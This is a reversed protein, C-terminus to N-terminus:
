GQQDPYHKAGVSEMWVVSEGDLAEAIALHTMAADPAAGHWHKEGAPFWVSDGAVVTQVPKGWAQVLGRGQLILLTQGLPHTHWHTRAGPEFAVNSGRVRAPDETTFVPDVRVQGTFYTAPAAQSPFTGAKTIRM